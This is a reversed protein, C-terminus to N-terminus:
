GAARPGGPLSRAEGEEASPRRGSIGAEPSAEVAEVPGEGGEAAREVILDGPALGELIEVRSGEDRGIRVTQARAVGERVLWAKQVGAFQRLASKPAVVASADARTVIEAEAFLGAPLQLDANAVEAEVLTSRTTPSVRPSVRAVTTTLPPSGDPGCRIRIQQGPRVAASSSEPVGAAFRLTASRILTAVPQGAAVFEGPAVLREAVVGDFPAAIQSDNAAQEALALETRRVGILAIQEGVAHLAANYRAQAAKLEALLGNYEAETVAQSALLQEARELESEAESVLAQELMAGPATRPDFQSEDATPSLGVAACAQRLQAAALAVRLDLETRVLRVLPEGRRVRSGLDIAVQEVRGALKSGVVADDYALLSGQVRVSEPWPEARVRVAAVRRPAAVAAAPETPVAAERCGAAFCCAALTWRRAVATCVGGPFPM